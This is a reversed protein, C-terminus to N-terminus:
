IALVAPEPTSQVLRRLVNLGIELDRESGAGLCVRIGRQPQAGDVRFNAGSAVAVGDNRALAVIKDEPWHDPLSLWVHLGYPTSRYSVDHLVDAVIRNRRALHQRQWNLLHRATGDEIWRSAIEAIIPTAMWNTVLHRTRAAHVKSEPIVLWAIRLGPLISKSMGTFYFTLEPALSAIPPTRDPELPGWADNEIIWVSHRRAIEVIAKRREIGMKSATPGLGAPMVCLATVSSNNCAKEFAEPLIGQDDMALGTLKLGLVSALSNLTHHGVDESVIVDGPMAATMLACTMAPTNGNTPLIQDQSGVHVGCLELWDCAQRNHAELTERPRLSFAAAQPLDEAIGRMVDATLEGHVDGTVPVLMSLDIIQNTGHPRHWPLPAETTKPQVYSGRGVQGSIVGLRTLEEYARSVTQVSLGLDFALARHTPLKTGAPVEGAEIARMLCQALSHYAPRTLAERKPPWITM